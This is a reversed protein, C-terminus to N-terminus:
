IKLYCVELVNKHPNNRFLAISLRLYTVHPWHMFVVINLSHFTILYLLIFKLFKNLHSVFKQKFCAGAFFSWSIDM